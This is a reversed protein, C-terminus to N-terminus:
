GEKHSSLLSVLYRQAVYENRISKWDSFAANCQNVEESTKIRDWKTVNSYDALHRQQQLENFARAVSRLKAAVQPSVSPPYATSEAWVCAQKM